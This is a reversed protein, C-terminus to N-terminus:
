DDEGMEWADFLAYIDDIAAKVDELFSRNENAKELWGEASAAGTCRAARREAKAIEKEISRAYGILADEIICQRRLLRDKDM